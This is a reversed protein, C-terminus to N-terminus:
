RRRSAALAPEPARAASPARRHSRPRRRRRPPRRARPRRPPRRPPHRRRPPRRPRRRRRRQHRPPRPLRPPRRRARPAARSPACAYVKAAATRQAANNLASCGREGQLAPAVRTCHGGGQRESQPRQAPRLLPTLACCGRAARLRASCRTARKSILQSSGPGARCACRTSRRVEAGEVFVVKTGEAPAARRPAPSLSRSAPSSSSKRKPRGAGSAVALLLALVTAAIVPLTLLPLLQAVADSVTARLAEMDMTACPPSAFARRRASPLTRRHVGTKLATPSVGSALSSM